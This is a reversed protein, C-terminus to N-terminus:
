VGGKVIFNTKATFVKREGDIVRVLVAIAEYEGPDLDRAIRRFIPLSNDGHLAIESSGSYWDIVLLRNDPNRPVVVEIYVENKGNYIQATPRAKISVPELLLLIMLWVM